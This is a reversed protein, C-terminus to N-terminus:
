GLLIFVRLMATRIVTKWWMCSSLIDCWDHPGSAQFCALPGLQSALYWSYGFYAFIFNIIPILAIMPEWLNFLLFLLFTFWSSVKLHHPNPHQLVLAIQLYLVSANCILDDRLFLTSGGCGRGRRLFNYASGGGERLIKKEFRAFFQVNFASSM